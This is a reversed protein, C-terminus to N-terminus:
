WFFASGHFALGGLQRQKALTKRTHGPCIAARAQETSAVNVGMAERALLLQVRRQVARHSEVALRQFRRHEGRTLSADYEVDAVAITRHRGKRKSFPNSQRHSTQVAPANEQVTASTAAFYKQGSTMEVSRCAADM